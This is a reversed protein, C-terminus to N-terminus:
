FVFSVVVTKEQCQDGQRPGGSSLNDGRFLVDGRFLALTAAVGTLRRIGTPCVRPEPVAKHSRDFAGSLQVTLM